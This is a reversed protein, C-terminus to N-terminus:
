MRRRRAVMASLIGTLALAMGSFQGAPTSTSCGGSNDQADEGDCDQDIGDEPIEVAGTFVTGDADNCDGGCSTQGDSDADDNLHDDIIGNCDNDRSDCLEIGGPFNSADGDDCDLNAIDIGDGDADNYATFDAGPGGYTGMDNRSADPDNYSRDSDGKNIAASGNKLAFPYPGSLSFLPDGSINGNVGTADTAGGGYNSPQNGFVDTYSLSPNAGASHIGGTKTATNRAVIVNRLTASGNAAIHVGGGTGYTLPADNEAVTVNTLRLGGEAHAGGGYTATNGTILTNTFAGGISFVGGGYGSATNDAILGGTVDGASAVYVGGGSAASNGVVINNKITSTGNNLYIGGGFTAQNNSFTNGELTAPGWVNAGGGNTGFNGTVICDRIVPSSGVVVSIGSSSGGTITFGLLLSSTTEGGAFLVTTGKAGGNIVTSGPGDVSQVTVAKGKFNINEAYTGRTVLVIDGNVAIDLASQITTYLEGSGVNLTAAASVQPAFLWAMSAAAVASSTWRM